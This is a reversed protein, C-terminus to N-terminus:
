RSLKNLSDFLKRQHRNVFLDYEGFSLLNQEVKLLPGCKQEVGLLDASDNIEIIVPEGNEKLAIDMGLIRYFPFSQQIKVAVDIIRNWEPIVCGEFVIKSTPHEAYRHGKKDYAYKYLQGTQYNIGVGIGGASTNDVYSAGVGCRMMAGLVIISEKKTYMTVIRLTNVSSSSFRSMRSDQKLVEQVIAKKTLKFDQLPIFHAKSQIIIKKNTKKALVIGRGGSGLLPKIIFVDAASDHFCSEIKGKYNEDPSIISYMHPTNVGIGRCLHECILKDNFIAYKTPQVKRQLRARQHADYNSGYYFKWNTKEIEWLRCQGYHNPFTKYSFFLELLDIAIAFHSKKCEKFKIMEFYYKPLLSFFDIFRDVIPNSRFM